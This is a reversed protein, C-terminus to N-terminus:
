NGPQIVIDEGEHIDYDIDDYVSPDEDIVAEAKVLRPHSIKTKSKIKSMTAVIILVIGNL